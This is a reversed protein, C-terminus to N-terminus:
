SGQEELTVIIGRSGRVQLVVVSMPLAYPPSFACTGLRRISTGYLM